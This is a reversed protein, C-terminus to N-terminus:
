YNEKQQEQGEQSQKGKIEITEHVIGRELKSWSESIKKFFSIEWGLSHVAPPCPNRGPNGSTGEHRASLPHETFM